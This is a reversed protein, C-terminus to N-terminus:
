RSTVDRDGRNLPKTPILLTVCTGRGAESEITMTGGAREITQSCLALGVGSGKPKTTFFLTRCNALVSPTMGSGTDTVRLQLVSQDSDLSASVEIEGGPPTAHIANTVLNFVFARMSGVDLPLPPMRAIRSVVRLGHTRVSSDLVLLEEGLARDISHPVPTHLEGRFLGIGELAHKIRRVETLIASLERRVHGPQVEELLVEVATTIGALPNKIEHLVAPLTEGVAALQLLRDHDEKLRQLPGLDQFVVAFWIDAM